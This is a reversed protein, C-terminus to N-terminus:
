LPLTLPGHVYGQNVTASWGLHHTPQAHGRGSHGGRPLTGRLRGVPHSIAVRRSPRREPSTVHGTSSRWVSELQALPQERTDTLPREVAWRPDTYTSSDSHARPRHRHRPHLRPLVVWRPCDAQPAPRERDDM